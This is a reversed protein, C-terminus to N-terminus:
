ATEYFKSSMSSQECQEYQVLKGQFKSSFEMYQVYSGKSRGEVEETIYHFGPRHM